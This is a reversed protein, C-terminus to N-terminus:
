ASHCLSLREMPHIIYFFIEIKTAENITFLAKSLTSSGTHHSETALSFSMLMHGVTLASANIAYLSPSLPSFFCIAPHQHARATLWLKLANVAQSRSTRHSLLMRDAVHPDSQFCVTTRKNAHQGCAACQTQGGAGNRLAFFRSTARRPAM